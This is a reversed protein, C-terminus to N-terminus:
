VIYDTPDITWYPTGQLTVTFFEGNVGYFEIVADSQNPINSLLGAWYPSEGSQDFGLARLDIRDVGNQFDTITINGSAQPTLVFIDAGGGGTLTDSGGNGALVNSQNNGILVDSFASGRVNEISSLADVGQGTASNTNLNVTVAAGGDFVAWDFGSGGELVDNGGGGNLWDDGSGGILRDAGSGGNLVDNGNGGELRDNGDGGNLTDDGGLGRLVDDQPTGNLVDNLTNNGNINAM